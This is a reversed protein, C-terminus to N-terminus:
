PKNNNNNNNNDTYLGFTQVSLNHASSPFHTPSCLGMFTTPERRGLHPQVLLQQQQKRLLAAAAAPSLASNRGRKRTRTPRAQLHSWMNRLYPSQRFKEPVSPGDYANNSNGNGNNNTSDGPIEPKPAIPRYRSMIEDTKSSYPLNLAQIM